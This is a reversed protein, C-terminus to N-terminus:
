AGAAQAVSLVICTYARAKWTGRVGFPERLLCAIASRWDVISFRCDAIALRFHGMGSM